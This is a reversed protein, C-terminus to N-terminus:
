NAAAMASGPEAFVDRVAALVEKGNDAFDQCTKKIKDKVNKLAPKTEAYDSILKGAVVLVAAAICNAALKRLM